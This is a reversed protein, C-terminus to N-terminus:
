SHGVLVPDEDAVSSWGAKEPEHRLSAAPPVILLNCSASRLVGAAVSGIMLREFGGRGHTGLVALDAGREKLAALIEEREYGSRVRAACPRANESANAAVFRSLEEGAFRQIQEPSFHLSGGVEFPNLVFLVETEVAPCGIRALFDLGERLAHASIPSLDVPIEVRAPPFATESRVALVPCPAKRIVRDATSGLIGHSEAAGVVVLDAQVRQAFDVIMRHASGMGLRVQGPSSGALASMGTRVAQATLLEHLTKRQEEIWQADLGAGPAMAIPVYAHVLWVSAGTARALAVGTRVVGDSADTLSTGIVITKLPKTM